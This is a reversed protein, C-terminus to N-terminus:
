SVMDLSQIAHHTIRKNCHEWDIDYNKLSLITNIEDNLHTTLIHAFGAILEVFKDADYALKKESVASVYESFRDVCPGFTDHQAINADMIGSVGTEDEILPFAVEEETAHHGHLCKIWTKAYLMFDKIDKAETVNVAQRIM